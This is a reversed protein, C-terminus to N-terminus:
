PMRSRTRDRPSPSTYLLCGQYTVAALLGGVVIGLIGTGWHGVVVWYVIGALGGVFIFSSAESITQQERGRRYRVVFSASAVAAGGIPGVIAAGLFDALFGASLRRGQGLSIGYREALISLGAFFLSDRICM